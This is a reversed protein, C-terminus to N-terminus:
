CTFNWVCPVWDLRLRRRGCVDRVQWGFIDGAILRTPPAAPRIFVCEFLYSTLTVSQLRSNLVHRLRVSRQAYSVTLAVCHALTHKCLLRTVAEKFHTCWKCEHQPHFCRVTLRWNACGSGRRCGLVSECNWPESTLGGHKCLWALHWRVSPSDWVCLPTM